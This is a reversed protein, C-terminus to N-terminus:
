GPPMRAILVSGNRYLVSLRVDARAAEQSSLAGRFPGDGFAHALLSATYGGVADQLFRATRDDGPALSVIGRAGHLAPTARLADVLRASFMLDQHIAAMRSVQYAGLLAVLVGVGAVAARGWGPDLLRDVIHAALLCAGFAPMYLYVENRAEIPLVPALFATTWAVAFALVAAMRPSGAAARPAASMLRAPLGVSGLLAVPAPLLRWLYNTANRTWRTVTSDFNYFGQAATPMVAGAHARWAFLGAGALLLGACAAGRALPPRTARPVCLLAFPLLYAAEKSLVALPYGILAALLWTVGAGRTWRTWAVAAGFAFLAMLLEGRASIWLVATPHAKPTLAFALTALFAGRRSSLVAASLAFACALVAAHLVVNTVRFAAWQGPHLVSQLKLTWQTVPRYFYFTDPALLLQRVNDISEVHELHVFDDTLLGGGVFPAYVALALALILLLPRM